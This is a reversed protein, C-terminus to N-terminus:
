AKGNIAEGIRKYLAEDQDSQELIENFRDATLGANNIASEMDAEAAQRITMIRGLATDFQLQEKASLTEPQEGIIGDAIANFRDITFKEAEVAKAMDAEARDRIGQISRYAEAFKNLDAAPVKAVALPVAAIIGPAIAPAGYAQGGGLLLGLCAVLAIAITQLGRVM